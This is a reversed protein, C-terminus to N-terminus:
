RIQHRFYFAGLLLLLLSCALSLCYVKVMFDAWHRRLLGVRDDSGLDKLNYRSHLFGDSTLSVYFVAYALLIFPNHVFLRIAAQYSAPTFKLTLVYCIYPALLYTLLNTVFRPVGARTMFNPKGWDSWLWSWVDALKSM